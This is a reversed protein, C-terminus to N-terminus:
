QAVAKRCAILRSAKGRADSITDAISMPGTLSGAMWIGTQESPMTEELFGDERVGCHTLEALVENDAGPHIGGMLVCLDVEKGHVGGADEWCVLTGSEGCKIRNPRCRIMEFGCETMEALYNGSKVSQLDMFFMTIEMNPYMHKLAKASRTAYGCCVKSCWPTGHAPNRSGFCFVFGIREPPDTFIGRETRRKLLQELQAGYMVNAGAQIRFNESNKEQIHSFGSALFVDGVTVTEMEQGQELVAEFESRKGTLERLVTNTRVDINSEDRVKKGLDSTLCVGCQTCKEAAKCGYDATKGGLKSSKEILLVPFGAKVLSLAATCGAAGGGIVLIKEM